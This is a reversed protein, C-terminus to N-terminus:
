AVDLTLQEPEARYLRYQPMASTPDHRTEHAWGYEKLDYLRASFRGGGQMMLTQGRVWGFGAAAFIEYVKRASRKM